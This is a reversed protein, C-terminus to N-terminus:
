YEEYTETSNRCTSPTRLGGCDLRRGRVKLNLFNAYSSSQTTPQSEKNQKEMFKLWSM